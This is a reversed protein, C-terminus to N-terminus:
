RKGKKRRFFGHLTRRRVDRENTDWKRNRITLSRHMLFRRGREIKSRPTDTMFIRAAMERRTSDPSFPSFRSSHSFSKSPFNIQYRLFISSLQQIYKQLSSPPKRHLLVKSFTKFLSEQNKKKIFSSSLNQPIKELMKTSISTFFSADILFITDISTPGDM